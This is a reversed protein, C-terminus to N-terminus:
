EYLRMLKEAYRRTVARPSDTMQVRTSNYIYHDDTSEPTYGKDAMWDAMQAMIERKKAGFHLMVVDEFGKPPNEIMAIMAETITSIRINYNYKASDKTNTEYTPENGYPHEVFVSSQIGLIIDMVTRSPNWRNPGPWTNLISICVKGNSYLNPNHRIKGNGTNLIQVVPPKSPFNAPFTLSFWFLGNQYPTDKPGVIMFQLANINDEMTRVFISSSWHLLQPIEQYLLKHERLVARNNKCYVGTFHHMLLDASSICRDRMIKIYIEQEAEPEPKPEPKSQTKRSPKPISLTLKSVPKLKPKSKLKPKPVPVTGPKFSFSSPVLKIPPKQTM